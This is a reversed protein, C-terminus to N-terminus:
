FMDIQDQHLDYVVVVRILMSYVILTCTRLFYNVKMQSFM